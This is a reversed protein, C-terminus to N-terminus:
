EVARRLAKRLRESGQSIGNDLVYRHWGQEEEGQPSETKEVLAVKFLRVRPREITDTTKTTMLLERGIDDETDTELRGMKSAAM